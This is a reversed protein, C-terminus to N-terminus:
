RQAALAAELLYDYAQPGSVRLPGRSDGDDLLNTTLERQVRHIHLLVAGM